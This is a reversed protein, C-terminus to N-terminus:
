LSSVANLAKKIDDEIADPKIQPAYRKIPRGDHDVLFKTFNWKIRRTGLLGPRKTKLFEYLPHAHPGNVDIKAFLPFTVGYRTQCFTKIESEPGPEQKGFQNSPFGLVFFRQGGFKEYLKELGAYQPTFGCQSAVNVILLVNGRYKAIPVQAGDISIAQFDYVTTKQGEDM